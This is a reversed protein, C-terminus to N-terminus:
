PNVKGQIHTTGEGIDTAQSVVLVVVGIAAVGGAAVWFWPSEYFAKDGADAPADTSRAGLLNEKRPGTKPVPDTASIATVQPASGDSRAEGEGESLIDIASAIKAWPVIGFPSDITTAAPAANPTADLRTPEFFLTQKGEVDEVRLLRVAQGKDDRGVLVLASAGLEEALAGAVLRSTANSPSMTLSQRLEALKKPRAETGADGGCLARASAEDLSPRLREVRYVERALDRCSRGLEDEAAGVAVVVAGRRAPAPAAVAPAAPAPAPEADQAWADTAGGAALGSSLLIGLAALRSRM